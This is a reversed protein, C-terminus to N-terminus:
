RKVGVAVQLFFRHRRQEAIPPVGSARNAMFTDYWRSCRAPKIAHPSPIAILMGISQTLDIWCQGLILYTPHESRLNWFVVWQARKVM